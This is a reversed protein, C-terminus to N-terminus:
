RGRYRKIAHLPSATGMMRSFLLSQAQNIQFYNIENNVKNLYRKGNNLSEQALDYLGLSTYSDTLATYINFLTNDIEQSPTSKNLYNIAKIGYRIAEFNNNELFYVRSYIYNIRGLTYSDNSKEAYRLSEGLILYANKYDQKSSNILALISKSIAIYSNNNKKEAYDIMIKTYKELEEPSSGSNYYELTLNKYDWFKDSKNKKLENKLSDIKNNQGFVFCSLLVLFLSKRMM